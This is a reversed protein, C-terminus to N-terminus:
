RKWETIYPHDPPVDVTKVELSIKGDRLEAIVYFLPTGPGGIGTNYGVQGDALPTIKNVNRCHDCRDGAVLHNMNVLFPKIEDWRYSKHAWTKWGSKHYYDDWPLHHSMLINQKGNNLEGASKVLFSKIEGLSDLSNILVFNANDGHIIKYDYGIRSIYETKWEPFPADTKHSEIYPYKYIDHNGPSFYVDPRLKSIQGLVMKWERDNNVNVLDGLFFVYDIGIEQSMVDIYKEFLGPYQIMYYTHSALLFRTSEKRHSCSTISIAILLIFFPVIFGSYKKM